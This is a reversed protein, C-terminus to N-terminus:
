PQRRPFPTPDPTRRRGSAPGPRREWRPDTGSRPQPWPTPPARPRLSPWARRARASTSAAPAPAPPPSAPLSRPNALRVFRCPQAPPPRVHTLRDTRHCRQPSERDLRDCALPHLRGLDGITPEDTVAGVRADVGLRSLDQTG